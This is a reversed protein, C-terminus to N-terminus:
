ASDDDLWSCGTKVALGAALQVESAKDTLLARFRPESHTSESDQHRDLVRHLPDFAVYEEGRAEADGAFQM